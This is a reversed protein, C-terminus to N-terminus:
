HDSKLESRDVKQGLSESIKDIKGILERFMERQEQRFDKFEDKHVYEQMKNTMATNAGRLDDISKLMGRVVLGGFFAVLALLVNFALLIFQSEAAM